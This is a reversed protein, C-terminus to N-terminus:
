FVDPPPPHNIFDNCTAGAAGAGQQVLMLRYCLARNAQQPSAASIPSRYICEINENSVVVWSMLSLVHPFPIPPDM